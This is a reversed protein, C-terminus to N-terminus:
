FTRGLYRHSAASENRYPDYDPNYPVPGYGDRRVMEITAIIAWLAFAGLAVAITM